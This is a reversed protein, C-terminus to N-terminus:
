DTTSAEARSALVKPIRGSTDRQDEAPMTTIRSNPHSFRATVSSKAACLRSTDVPRPRAWTTVRSSQETAAEAGPRKRRALAAPIARFARGAITDVAAGIREEGGALVRERRDLEGLRHEDVGKQDRDASQSPRCPGVRGRRRRSGPRRPRAGLEAANRELCAAPCRGTQGGGLASACM